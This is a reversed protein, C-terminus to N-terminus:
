GENLIDLHPFAKQVPFAFRRASVRNKTMVLNCKDTSKLAFHLHLKEGILAFKENNLRHELKIEDWPEILNEPNM